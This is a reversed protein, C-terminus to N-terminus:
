FSDLASFQQQDSLCINIHVKTIKSSKSYSDHDSSDSDTHWTLGTFRFQQKPARDKFAPTVELTPEKTRMYLISLTHVPTNTHPHIPHLVRKLRHILQTYM